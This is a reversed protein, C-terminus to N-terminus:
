ALTLSSIERRLRASIVNVEPAMDINIDVM